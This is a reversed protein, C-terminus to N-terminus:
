LGVLYLKMKALDNTNIKGDKNIDCTLFAKYFYSYERSLLLKLVALDTTSINGDMNIDGYTLPLSAGSQYSVTPTEGTTVSYNWDMYFNGDTFIKGTILETETLPTFSLAKVSEKTGDSYNLTIQANEGWIASPKGSLSTSSIAKSGVVTTFAGKYSDM